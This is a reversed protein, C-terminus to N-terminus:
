LVSNLVRPSRIVTEATKAATDELPGLYSTSTYTKPLLFSVALAVTGALLTGGVILRLHEILTAMVDFWGTWGDPQQVMIENDAVHRPSSSDQQM